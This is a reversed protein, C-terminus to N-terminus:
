RGARRALLQQSFIARASNGSQKVVFVRTLAHAAGDAHLSQEM